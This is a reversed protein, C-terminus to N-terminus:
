ASVEDGVGVGAFEGDGVGSGLEAGWELAV